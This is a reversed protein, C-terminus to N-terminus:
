QPILQGPTCAFGWGFGKDSVASWRIEPLSTSAPTGSAIVMDATPGIHIIGAMEGLVEIAQQETIYQGSNEALIREIKGVMSIAEPPSDVHMNWSAQVLWDEFADLSIRYLSLQQIMAQIQAVEIMDLVGIGWGIFRMGGSSIRRLNLSPCYKSLIIAPSNVDWKISLLTEVRNDPSVTSIV